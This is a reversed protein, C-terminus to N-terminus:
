ALCSYKAGNSSLECVPAVELGAPKEPRLEPGFRQPCGGDEIRGRAIGSAVINPTLSTRGLPRPFCERFIKAPPLDTEPFCNHENISNAASRASHPATVKLSVGESGQGTRVPNAEVTQLSRLHVYVTSSGIGPRQKVDLIELHNRGPRSHANRLRTAPPL